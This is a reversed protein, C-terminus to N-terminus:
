GEVGVLELESVTERGFAAELEERRVVEPLVFVVGSFLWFFANTIYNQWIAIGAFFQIWLLVFMWSYLVLGVAGLRGGRAARVRSWGHAFWALMWTIWLGLGIVGWEIALSGYGSEVSFLGASSAEAGGLIYQKGLSEKGTGQGVLGGIQMGEIADGSYSVWRSTWENGSSRPDLTAQYFELRSTLLTPFILSVFVLVALAVTAAPIVRNLSPRRESWAPALAAILVYIFGVLLPSRGGSVWIGAACIAALSIGLFRRRGTKLLSAALGAVMGVTVTTGYRGPDVFPGSPRYVEAGAVTKRITVLNDLGPTVETPALFRPGVIAQAIGLSAAVACVIAIGALTRYLLKRDQAIMAGIIVMPIYAFDLRLAILPLQWQSGLFSPISLIVAWVVLAYLAVRARGTVRRFVGKFGPDTLLGLLLVLYIVDKVAYVALNNGALKRVLDEFVFWGIFVVFTIHWQAILLPTAALLLIVAVLAFPPLSSIFPLNLRGTILAGLALSAFALAGFLLIRSLSLSGLLRRPGGLSGRSDGM